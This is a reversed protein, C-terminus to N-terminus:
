NDLHMVFDMASHLIRSVLVKDGIIHYFVVHKGAKIYRYPPSYKKGAEPEQGIANLTDNLISRYEGLQQEGWTQLTYSLIDLFDGKTRETLELHYKRFSM